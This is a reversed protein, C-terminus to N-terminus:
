IRQIFSITPLNAVLPFYECGKRRNRQAKFRYNSLTELYEIKEFNTGPILKPPHGTRLPKTLVKKTQIDM